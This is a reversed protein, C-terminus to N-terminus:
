LCFGSVGAAAVRFSRSNVSSVFMCARFCSFLSSNQAGGTRWRSRAVRGKVVVTLVGLTLCVTQPVKKFDSAMNRTITGLFRLARVFKRVNVVPLCVAQYPRLLDQANEPVLEWLAVLPVPPLLTLLKQRLADKMNEANVPRGHERQAYGWASHAARLQSQSGGLAELLSAVRAAADADLRCAQLHQFTKHREDSHGALLGGFTTSM